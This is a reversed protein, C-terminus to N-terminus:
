RPWNEIFRPTKNQQEDVIRQFIARLQPYSFTGIILRKNVILTPVSRIGYSYQVSTPEYEAGTQIIRHVLEQTAPDTLGQEVGYQRALNRRWGPDSAEKWHALFDDHLQLFKSPQYAAMYAAECAGPHKDKTVVQNCKAELPFFQWVINIKGKFDEKLKELQQENYVSDDCLLDSFEVVQIPADEFRDTSRVIWYPSLFSPLKVRALRSYQDVARDALAEEKVRTFARFGYAGLAAMIAIVALVRAAPACWKKWLGHSEVTSDRHALVFLSLGAFVWYTVGILCVSKLYITWGFLLVSFIAVNLLAIARQTRELSNSPIISGLFVLCGAVLGCYALPVGGIQALASYDFRDCNWHRNIDCFEQQFTVASYNAAYFHQIGLASCVTMGIGSVVNLLGL